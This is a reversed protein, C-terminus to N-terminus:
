RPNSGRRESQLERVTMKLENMERRMAASEAELKTIRAGYDRSRIEAIDTQVQTLRVNVVDLDGSLAYYLGTGTATSTILMGVIVMVAQAVQSYHSTTEATTPPTSVVGM